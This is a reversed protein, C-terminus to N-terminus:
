YYKLFINGEFILLLFFFISLQAIVDPPSFVTSLLCFTCYFPKRFNKRLPAKTANITTLIFMISFIIFFTISNVYVNKCYSWYVLLNAEFLLDFASNLNHKDSFGLFFFTTSPIIINNTLILLILLFSLLFKSTRKFKKHNVQKSSPLLFSIFHSVAVIFVLQVSLFFIVNLYLSFLESINQFIFYINKYGESKLLPKAVLFLLNEKNSYMIQLNALFSLTLLILRNKIEYVFIKKLLSM